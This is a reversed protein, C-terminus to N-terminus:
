QRITRASLKTKYNLSIIKRITRVSLKTKCNHSITKKKYNLSITKKKYNQILTRGWEETQYNKINEKSQCSITTKKCVFINNQTNVLEM